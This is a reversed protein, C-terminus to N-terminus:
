HFAREVLRQNLETRSRPSWGLTKQWIARNEMCLYLFVGPAEHRICDAVFSLLEVRLPWFYRFKGDPCAVFEDLLLNRKRPHPRINKELYPLYRFTGLSIWAIRDQDIIKFLKAILEQYDIRWDPYHIIPDFHFALPYGWDSVQRAAELRKQLSATRQEYHRVLYDTSLSWAVITKGRHPLNELNQIADTKTKLELCVQPREAFLPVLFTTLPLVPELVLSDTLEGTGIRFKQGPHDLILQDLEQELTDWNTYVTLHDTGLYAQLICYDCGLNCNLSLNLIYYGCCIYPPNTGPCHKIFRGKNEEFNLPYDCARKQPQVLTKM